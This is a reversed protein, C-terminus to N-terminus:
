PLTEGDKAPRYGLVVRDRGDLDPIVRIARFGADAMLASVAKAQSPGIEVILRGGPRLHAPAGASIARYATLGDAEDTLAIRPEYLRVESQLDDMEDAAIYPPNSVILDYGGGVAQFWDSVEFHARELVGLATANQSAVRLAAESIDTGMGVAQPVEALLTLLIAGSGTGLDLVDQFPANLATAILTETEPRPDLVDKTVKFERGYFARGGIIHSIPEGGRRRSAFVHAAELIHDELTDYALLTLREAPVSMAHALLLRAERAPHEIVVEPSQLDRNQGLYKTLHRLGDQVTKM